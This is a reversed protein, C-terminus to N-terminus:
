PMISKQCGSKNNQIYCVCGCYRRNDLRVQGAATGAIHAVFGYYDRVVLGALVSLAALAMGPHNGCEARLAGNEYM